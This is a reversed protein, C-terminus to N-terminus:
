QCLTDVGWTSVEHVLSPLLHLIAMSLQSIFLYLAIDNKNDQAKCAVVGSQRMPWPENQPQRPERWLRFRCGSWSPHFKPGSLVQWFPNKLRAWVSIMRICNRLSAELKSFLTRQLSASVLRAPTQIINVEWALGMNQIVVCSSRRSAM